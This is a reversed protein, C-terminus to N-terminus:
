GLRALWAAISGRYGTPMPLAAVEAPTFLGVRDHEDSLVPDADSGPHCGYTVILVDAGPRIHYQWADLLPGATVAWGVEEAIERVVCDPPEEGLELKGGPLEWEGRENHLLLVRGARVVVGKVSVPFRHPEYSVATLTADRCLRCM